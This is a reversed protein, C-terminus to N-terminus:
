HRMYLTETKCSSFTRSVTATAYCCLRVEHWQVMRKSVALVALRVSKQQKTALDRGVRRRDWPSYGVLRRQGHSEGPLFVPTPNGNGKGPFRESAPILGADGANAPPEKDSLWRPFGHETKVVIYFRSSFLPCHTPVRQHTPWERGPCSQGKAKSNSLPLFDTHIPPPQQGPPHLGPTPPCRGSM